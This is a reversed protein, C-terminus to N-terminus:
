IMMKKRVKLKIAGENNNNNNNNNNHNNGDNDDTIEVKKLENLRNELIKIEKEFIIEKKVEEILSNIENENITFEMKHYVSLDPPEKFWDNFWNNNYYYNITDQIYEIYEM